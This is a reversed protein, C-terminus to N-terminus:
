VTGRDVFKKPMDVTRARLYECVNKGLTDYTSCADYGRDLHDHLLFHVARINPMEFRDIHTAKKAEHPGLLEKIKNITLFSRLWEWEDDHRVFFGTNADSCKDGSRGLVVRGMPIRVTPGFSDLAVPNKTEYSPQQKEFAKFEPALPMEIIPTPSDFLLHIRQKIADQPLLAPHYEYYPKAQSLRFDNGLSAGPCSQLFTTMTRRFFGDMNTMELLDKDKSQAFIRFDVTAVDQNRADVVSSGNQMFSLLSFKKIREPGLEALIQDETWKCKEEIDLGCMYVHYEAQWGAFGTIGVKTTPPPPLGRVGSVKVQDEGVQEIKIDELQATVDCNYYLPGQIEYLLQSTVSNVTMVGGRNKEKYMVGHGNHDIACIPFGMDIHKGAKLIDKFDSSYGGAVYSSCELLHGIVLSGALQDFQDNTWQHWWAAAGIIPSADSVRGCIVIDAGETLAKAIGLGGLYSQACVPELGWETLSKGHMLSQFKEGKQVLAKVAGTADDGEVWAVKLKYGAEKVTKDVLQALLETDSAGANVALKIGKRALHPIAPTICSM